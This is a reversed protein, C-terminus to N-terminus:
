CEALRTCSSHHPNRGNPPRPQTGALAPAEGEDTTNRGTLEVGAKRPPKIILPLLDQHARLIERRALCRLISQAEHTVEGALGMQLFNMEQPAREQGIGIVVHHQFKCKRGSTTMYYRM